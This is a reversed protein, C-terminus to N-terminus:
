AAGRVAPELGRYVAAAKSELARVCSEPDPASAFVTCIPRGRAIPEGPHPIDAMAPDRLWRSGAGVRVDSRAFVVAKGHVSRLPRPIAAPLRGDCAAAHLTFLPLGAYRELLEMSASIRPNVEIPWPVGARAIFDIGNLGVLGYARTVAAALAEACARLAEEGPFLGPGMLSGCYRFGRAGFARRGVLQRALGLACSRRGDALFVVSGTAGTIREQLYQHRAIPRRRHWPVTGHGGGSRRPKLLWRLTDGTSTRPPAARTLPVEFGLRRLARMLEVHDRVRRIVPAANGLLRRGRALAAVAAPHNEFNSTYAVADALIGRTAAVAAAPDFGGNEGHPVLVDACARLDLDGFADAATVSWGARAASVALPRTTVGTVLLRRVGDPM